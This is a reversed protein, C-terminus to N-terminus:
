SADVQRLEAQLEVVAGRDPLVLRFVAGGEPANEAWIRGGHQAVLGRCIALGLGTGGKERSDSADVQRFREFIAELKDAPIGRGQDRVEFLLGDPRREARLTVRGARPSFKVANDLMNTLVQVVRVPDAVLPSACAEVALTVGAEAAQHQVMAAAEAM